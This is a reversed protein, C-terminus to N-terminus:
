HKGDGYQNRGEGAHRLGMTHGANNAFSYRGYACLNNLSPCEGLKYALKGIEHMNASLSLCWEDNMIIRWHNVAAMGIWKGTGPPLCFWIKDALSKVGSLLLNMDVIIKAQADAILQSPKIYSSINEDLRVDLGGAFVWDLHWFSCALYQSRINKFVRERLEKLTINPGVGDSTTVRVIFLKKRGKAPGVYNLHRKHNSDREIISYTTNEMTTVGDEGVVANTIALLMSGDAISPEDKISTPITIPILVDSETNDFDFIPICGTEDIQRMGGGPMEYTTSIVTIRCILPKNYGRVARCSSLILAFLVIEFISFYKM